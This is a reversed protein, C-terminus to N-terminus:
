PRSATAAPTRRTASHAPPSAAPTPTAGLRGLGRAGAPARRALVRSRSSRAGRRAARAQPATPPAASGGAAARPASRRSRRRPAPARCARLERGLRLWLGLRPAPAASGSGSGSGLAPARARAPPRRARGPPSSRVPIRSRTGSPKPKRRTSPRGARVVVYTDRERTPAEPQSAAVLAPRTTGRLDPSRWPRM